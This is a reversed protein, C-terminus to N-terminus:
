ENFILKSFIKSLKNKRCKPYLKDSCGDCYVGGVDEVRYLETLNFLEQCNECYGKIEEVPITEECSLCYFNPTLKEESFRLDGLGLRLYEFQIGFTALFLSSKSLNLYIQGGDKGHLFNMKNEGENLYRKTM